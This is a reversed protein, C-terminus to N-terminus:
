EFVMFHKAVLIMDLINVTGDGNVDPNPYFPTAIEKGFHLVVLVIDSRDTRGDGNVDWSSTEDRYEYAGIDYPTSRTLGDRDTTVSPILEGTDLLFSGSRLRYNRVRNDVFDVSSAVKNTVHSAISPKNGIFANNRIDWSHVGGKGGAYQIHRGIGDGFTTHYVKLNALDDEARIAKGNDYIVANRITVNANGRSGRLRFAIENDYVTVGDFVAEIKEKMNFAARNAIYGDKIWGHAIINRITIKMRSVGDWGSKVMKTDIANEGPTEGEKWDNFNTELPGTWFHCNEILINDATDTDRDPDTQFCDGSVHHIETNRITIGQSDDASIGHADAQNKFSGALFHHIRLSEILIGDADQLVVGNWSGNRVTMNSLVVNKAGKVAIGAGRAMKHDVTLNEFITYDGRTTVAFIVPDSGDGYAGFGIPSDQTGAAIINLSEQWADGRKLLITDGPNLTVSNVWALTRWPSDRNTGLNTDSGTTAVFYIQNANAAAISLLLLKLIVIYKLINRISSGANWAM